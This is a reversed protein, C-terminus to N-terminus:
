QWTAEQRAEYQAVLHDTYDDQGADDRHDVAPLCRGRASTAARINRPRNAQMWQEFQERNAFVHPTYRGPQQDVVVFDSRSLIVTSM